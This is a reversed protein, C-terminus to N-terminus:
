KGPQQNQQQRRYKLPTIGYTQKFVTALYSSNSFGCEGAIYELDNNSEELLVCAKHLRQNNLFLVPSINYYKKFERFLVSRSMGCEKCMKEITWSKGCHKALKIALMSVIRSKETGSYNSCLNKETAKCIIQLFDIFLGVMAIQYGSPKQMQLEDMKKVQLLARDYDEAQLIYRLPESGAALHSQPALVFLNQFGATNSLDFLPLRLCEFNVLVNYYDLGYPEYDHHMGPAIVVIERPHLQYKKNECIHNGKGSVVLVIEYFQDHSHWGPRKGQKQFVVSLPFDNNHFVYSYPVVALLGMNNINSIPNLSTKSM